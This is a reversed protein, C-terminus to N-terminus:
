QALIAAVTEALDEHHAALPYRLDPGVSARASEEIEAAEARPDKRGIEAGAQALDVIDMSWYYDVPTFLATAVVESFWRPERREYPHIRYLAAYERGAGFFHKRRLPHGRVEGLLGNSVPAAYRFAATITHEGTPILYERQGHTASIRYPRVNRGDIRLIKLEEAPVVVLARTGKITPSDWLDGCKSQSRCGLGNVFCFALPLVSCIVTRLASKPHSISSQIQRYSDALWLGCDAVARCTRVFM